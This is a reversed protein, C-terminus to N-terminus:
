PKVRGKLRIDPMSFVTDSKTTVAMRLMKGNMLYHEVNAPIIFENSKWTIVEWALKHENWIKFETNQDIRTALLTIEEYITNGEVQPIDYEFTATGQSMHILGDMEVGWNGANVQSIDPIVYGFPINIVDNQVLNLHVRQAWLNLQNSSIAKGEHTYNLLQEDSWAMIFSGQQYWSTNPVYNMLIERERNFPDNNNAYPFLLSGLDWSSMGISQGKITSIQQIEENKALDGLKYLEGGIVLVVNTLDSTTANKIQGEINGHVNLHINVDLQGDTRNGTREVGFKALSWQPMNLLDVTTVKSGVEIFNNDANGNGFGNNDRQLRIHTDKPFELTYDGSKPTFFATASTMGSSGRGDLELINITHALEKTKDGSGVTYVTASAMLAILPIMWWAWERKDVKRLILYLLPAVVVIYILLMWVLAMFSPMRLSPFYNLISSLNNLNNDRIMPANQNILPLEERLLHSWVKPHGSWSAIPPMSLDYAAYLVKGQEVPRMAFLPRNEATYLVQSDKLPEANSLTFKGDLQLSQAGLAALEPLESVAFTGKYEVPSLEAFAAASKPYGAGGALILTGGSKVWGSIGNIQSKSLTDSSFRNIVLVDVSDLLMADEPIRAPSMSIINLDYGNGRLVNMFNMTDPDDSLVGINAGDVPLGELYSKGSTFPIHKGKRFSDAYFKIQNNSKNYIRGPVGMVIEKTTNGPLEVHQVYSASGSARDEDLLVIDGSIDTDSTLTITVPNWLENKVKGNYGIETKITISPGAAYVDHPIFWGQLLMALALVPLILKSGNINHNVM